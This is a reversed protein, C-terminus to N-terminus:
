KKEDKKKRTIKGTEFDVKDVQQGKEDFLTLSYKREIEKVFEVETKIAAKMEEDLLKQYKEIIKNTKRNRVYITYDLDQAAKVPMSDPLTKKEEALATTAFLLILVLRM